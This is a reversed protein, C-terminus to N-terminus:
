WPVDSDEQKASQKAPVGKDHEKLVAEQFEPSATVHAWWKGTNENKRAPFSIFRGKQGEKVQCGRITMFPNSGPKSALGINFSPYQGSIHEIQIEM